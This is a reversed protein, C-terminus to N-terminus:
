YPAQKVNIKIHSIYKTGEVDRNRVEKEKSFNPILKKNKKSMM